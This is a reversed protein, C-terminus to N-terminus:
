GTPTLDVCIPESDPVRYWAMHGSRLLTGRCLQGQIIRLERQQWTWGYAAHQEANLANLAELRQHAFEMDPESWQLYRALGHEEFSLLAAAILRSMVEPSAGKYAMAQIVQETAPTLTVQM